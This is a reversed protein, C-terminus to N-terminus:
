IHDSKKLNCRRCLLQVNADSNSGGRAVPIVHDYELYDNAGCEACKGGYETWVRQRVDRPIHRTREDGDKRLATQNSFAIAKSLIPYLVADPSELHVGWMPKQEVQFEFWDVGGRHAIIKRYNIAQAITQSQFVMRSDMIVLRGVHVDRYEGSRLQRIVILKAGKIAHVIEGSRFEMGDPKMLSPLRGEAIEVMCRLVRLEELAYSVFKPDIELTSMLWVIRSEHDKTISGEAKADALVHEVFELAPRAIAQLLEVKGIGLRHSTSVLSQWDDNSLCGDEISAYFVGRLFGEGEKKFFRRALVRSTEGVSEAIHALRVEEDPSLCGDDMAQALANRFQEIAVERRLSMAESNSLDLCKQVWLLQINENETMVEDSWVRELLRRYVIQVADYLERPNPDHQARFRDISFAKQEKKLGRSVRGALSVVRAGREPDILDPGNLDPDIFTTIASKIWKVFQKSM